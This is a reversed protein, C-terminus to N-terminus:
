ETQQHFATATLVNRSRFRELVASQAAAGVRSPRLAPAVVAAQPQVVAAPSQTAPQAAGVGAPDPLTLNGFIAQYEEDKVARNFGFYDVNAYPLIFLFGADQSGALRGKFILFEFDIRLLSQVTIETGNCTRVMLTNHQAAPIQRLLAAWSSNLM